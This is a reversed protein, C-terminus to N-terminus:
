VLLIAINVPGIKLFNLDHLCIIVFEINLAICNKHLVLNYM